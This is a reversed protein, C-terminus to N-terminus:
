FTEYFFNNIQAYCAKKFNWKYVLECVETYIHTDKACILEREIELELDSEPLNYAVQHTFIVLKICCVSRFLSM